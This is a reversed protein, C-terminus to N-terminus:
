PKIFNQNLIKKFQEYSLSEEFFMRKDKRYILTAPIAGSWSPDVKPIWTNSDPDDLVVVPVDIHHEKLFHMLRTEVQSPFDLSVLLITIKENELEHFARVIGPLEEVCPKCWTAWFNIIYTTDNQFSFHPELEHFTLVRLKQQM